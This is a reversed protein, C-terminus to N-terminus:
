VDGQRQKKRDEILTGIFRKHDLRLVQCIHAISNAIYYSEMRDDFAINSFAMLVREITPNTEVEDGALDVLSSLTEMIEQAKEHHSVYAKTEMLSNCMTDTLRQFDFGDELLKERVNEKRVTRLMDGLVGVVRREVDFGDGVKERYLEKMGDVMPLSIKEFVKAADDRNVEKTFRFRRNWYHDIEYSVIKATRWDNMLAIVEDWNESQLNKRVLKETLEGGDFVGSHINELNALVGIAKIRDEVLVENGSLRDFITREITKALSLIREGRLNDYELGKKAGYTMTKRMQDLVKSTGEWDFVASDDLIKGCMEELTVLVWKNYGEMDEPIQVWYDRKKTRETEALQKGLVAKMSREVRPPLEGSLKHRLQESVTMGYSQAIEERERVQPDAEIDRDAM